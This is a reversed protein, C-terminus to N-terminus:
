NFISLAADKQIHSFKQHSCTGRKCLNYLLLTEVRPLTLLTQFHAQNQGQFALQSYTGQSNFVKM